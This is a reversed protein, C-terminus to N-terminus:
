DNPKMILPRICSLLYFSGIILLIEDPMESLKEYAKIPDSETVVNKYGAKSAATALEEPKISSIPLDQLADFSTIIMSSCIPLLLPLVSEYEKGEKLALLIASKKHPYLKKFSDVFAHIKQENHAGDMIVTKNGIILTDMRGPVKQHLTELIRDWRPASLGDRQEIFEWVKYSLLWNRQQYLPLSNLDEPIMMNTREALEDIVTLKAKNKTSVQEFVKNVEDDQKYMLVHNKPKIIGAKQAAIEHLKDGLVHMHDFGIDTIVCVKDANGAVNTADHLGGLGTEMVAYDVNAKAFYWYVFAILLEFYTPIPNAPKILELFESLAKCFEIESLPNLNIQVRETVSDLHPSVTLGVKKGSAHLLSAIYYSTSTKGSTGAVHIIKLEDQPNGLLEMLPTMRELTVDKGLLEKVQPVYAALRENAQQINSITEM